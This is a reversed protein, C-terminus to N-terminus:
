KTDDSLCEQYSSPRADWGNRPDFSFAAFMTLVVVMGFSAAGPGATIQSLGPFDAMAALLVIVFVDLMSWQGIFEVFEYLRTRQTQMKSGRWRRRLLLGALILLKTMPVVISAVFVILALSWSGMDWFEMVGGLITHQSVGLPSRFTMVPLVNAPVYLILASIVMSWAFAESNPKRYHLRARCRRCRQGHGAVDVNQVFGCAHCGAIPAAADLGSGSPVALGADEAYRWLALASARSSVTMLVTLAAFGWLGPGVGLVALDALKVIAVLIGLMLVPVMSWPALARLVRMGFGFDPPLRGAGIALLAWLMFLLQSLPVVFAFLGAMIAVGQYGQQWTLALAQLLTANVTQSMLRLNVIPFYNAIAFVFLTALVIAVWNSVTFRSQRFLETDCRACRAVAGQALNLRTHLLACHPCAILPRAPDISL